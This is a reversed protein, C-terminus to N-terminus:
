YVTSVCGTPTWHQKGEGKKWTKTNKPRGKQEQTMANREHTKNVVREEEGYAHLHIEAQYQSQSQYVNVKCLGSLLSTCPVAIDIGIEAKAPTKVESRESPKGARM